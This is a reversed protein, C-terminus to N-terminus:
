SQRCGAGRCSNNKNLLQVMSGNNNMSNNLVSGSMSNQDLDNKIKQYNNNEKQNENKEQNILPKSNIKEHSENENNVENKSFISNRNNIINYFFNNDKKIKELLILNDINFEKAANELYNIEIEKKLQNNEYNYLFLFIQRM